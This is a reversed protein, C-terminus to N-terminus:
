TKLKVKDALRGFTIGWTYIALRINITIKSQVRKRKELTKERQAKM